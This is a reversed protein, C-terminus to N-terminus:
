PRGRDTVLIAKSKVKVSEEALYLSCTYLFDTLATDVRGAV